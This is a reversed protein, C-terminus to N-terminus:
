VNRAMRQDSIFQNKARGRKTTKGGAPRRMPDQRAVFRSGVHRSVYKRCSELTVAM